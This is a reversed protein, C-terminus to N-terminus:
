KKLNKSNKSYAHWEYYNNPPTKYQRLGCKLFLYGLIFIRVLYNVSSFQIQKRSKLILRFFGMENKILREIDITDFPFYIFEKGYAMICFYDKDEKNFIGAFSINNNKELYLISITFQQKFGAANLAIPLLSM